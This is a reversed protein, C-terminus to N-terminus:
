TFSAETEAAAAFLYVLPWNAAMLQQPEALSLLEAVTVVRTKVSSLPWEM